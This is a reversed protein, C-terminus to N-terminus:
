RQRRLSTAGPRVGKPLDRVRMRELAVRTLDQVRGPLKQMDRDIEDATGTWTVQRYRGTAEQFYEITLKVGGDALPTAAVSVAPPGKPKATGRPVEPDRIAARDAALQLVPGLALTAEATIEQGARWYHLKIARGPRDTRILNALQEGDRVKEGDYQLLIDGRQLDALAAPSDPLVHTILVGQGRPPVPLLTSRPEPVASFLVGLYTGKEDTAPRDSPGAAAGFLALAALATLALLYPTLARTQHIV